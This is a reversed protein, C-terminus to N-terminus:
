SSMTLPLLTSGSRIRSGPPLDSPPSARARNLDFALADVVEEPFRAPVPSSSALLARGFFTWFRKRPAVRLRQQPTKKKKKSHPFARSIRERAGYKKWTLASPRLRGQKQQGGHPLEVPRVRRHDEGDLRRPDRGILINEALPDQLESRSRGAEAATRRLGSRLGQRGAM